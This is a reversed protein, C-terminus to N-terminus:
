SLEYRAIHLLATYAVVSMPHVMLCCFIDDYAGARIMKIKGGGGEEAPTGLAVIRGNIGGAKIAEAAGLVAALGATAILNHGCGHGITPLADYRGGGWLNIFRHTHTM